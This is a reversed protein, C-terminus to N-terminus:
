NKINLNNKMFEEIDIEKKILNDKNKFFEYKKNNIKKITWGDNLANYLFVMQQIINYNINSNSNLLNRNDEDM